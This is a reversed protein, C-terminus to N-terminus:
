IGVPYRGVPGFKIPCERNKVKLVQFGCFIPIDGNKPIEAPLYEQCKITINLVYIM